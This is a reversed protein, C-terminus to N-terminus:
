NEGGFLSALIEDLGELDDVPDHIELPEDETLNGELLNAANRLLDVAYRDGNEMDFNQLLLYVDVVVEGNDAIRVAAATSACPTRDSTTERDLYLNTLVEAYEDEDAAAKLEDLNM